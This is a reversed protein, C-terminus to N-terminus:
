LEEYSRGLGNNYLYRIENDTLARGYIGLKSIMGTWFAGRDSEDPGWSYAGIILPSSNVSFGGAESEAVLVGNYYLRAFANDYVFTVHTLAYSNFPYSVLTELYTRDIKLIGGSIVGMSYRQTSTRFGKWLIYKDGSGAGRSIWVSISMESTFNLNENHAVDIYNFSGFSANEGDFNVNGCVVGHNEGHSDEADNSLNYWSVLGEKLNFKIGFEELNVTEDIGENDVVNLSVFGSPNSYFRVNVSRGLRLWDRNFSYNKLTDAGSIELYQFDIGSVAASSFYEGLLVDSSGVEVGDLIVSTGEISLIGSVTDSPSDYYFVPRESGSTAPLTINSQDYDVESLEFSFRFEYRSTSTESLLDEVNVILKSKVEFLNTEFSFGEEVSSLDEESLGYYQIDGNVNLGYFAFRNNARLCYPLDIFTSFDSRRPNKFNEYGATGSYYNEKIVSRWSGAEQIYNMIYLSDIEGVSKLLSNSVMGAKASVDVIEYKSSMEDIPFYVNKECSIFGLMIMVLILIFNFRKM